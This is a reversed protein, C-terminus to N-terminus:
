LTILTFFHVTCPSSVQGVRPPWFPSCLFCTLQSESTYSSVLSFTTGRATPLPAAGASAAAWLLLVDKLLSSFVSLVPHPLYQTCFPSWFSVSSAKLCVWELLVPLRRSTKIQPVRDYEDLPTKGGGIGGACACKQLGGAARGLCRGVTSCNDTKRDPGVSVWM